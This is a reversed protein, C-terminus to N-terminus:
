IELGFKKKIENARDVQDRRMLLEYCLEATAREAWKIGAARGTNYALTYCHLSVHSDDGFEELWARRISEESM